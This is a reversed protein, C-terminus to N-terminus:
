LIKLEALLDPHAVKSEQNQGAEKVLIREIAYYGDELAGSPTDYKWDKYSHLWTHGPKSPNVPNLRALADYEAVACPEEIVKLKKNIGKEKLKDNILAIDSAGFPVFQENGRPKLGFHEQLIGDVEKVPADVFVNWAREGIIKTQKLM